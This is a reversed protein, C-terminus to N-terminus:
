FLFKVEPQMERITGVIATIRRAQLLDLTV